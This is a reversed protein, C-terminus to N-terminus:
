LLFYHIMGKARWMWCWCRAGSSFDPRGHGKPVKWNVSSRTRRWNHRMFHFSVHQRDDQVDAVMSVNHKRHLPNSPGNWLVTYIHNGAKSTNSADFLTGTETIITGFLVVKNQKILPVCLPFREREWDHQCESVNRGFNMKLCGRVHIHVAKRVDANAGLIVSVIWCSKQLKVRFKRECYM